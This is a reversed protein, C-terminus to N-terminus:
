DIIPAPSTGFRPHDEFGEVSRILAYDGGAMVSVVRDELDPLEALQESYERRLRQWFERWLAELLISLRGTAGCGTFFVRRGDALARTMGAVLREFGDSDFVKAAAPAIEEDVGLLMRIGEGVDREIRQSLTATKPHSSETLLAGLRFAQQHNLFSEAKQRATSM